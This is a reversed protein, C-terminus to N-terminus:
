GARSRVRGRAFPIVSKSANGASAGEGGDKGTAKPAPNADPEGTDSPNGAGDANKPGGIQPVTGDGLLAPNNPDETVSPKPAAAQKVQWSYQDGNEKDEDLKAAKRADNITIWGAVFSKDNRGYVADQDEQLAEIDDADYGIYPTDDYLPSLWGNLNDRLTDSLPLVNEQYLAKRAEGYNSYTKNESDGILEPAINHVIAIERASLKQGEIWHMDNPSLGMEQWQVGGELLLPRGANMVGAYEEQIMSVMRDHQDPELNVETVLAGPPRAGNQLLATNWTRAANSQTISMAAAQIPSMGRWDDLPNFLKLHHIFPEPFPIKQNGVVYMYGAIPTVANGVIIQMRDPRHVYLEKPPGKDPGVREIFSNGDLMLYAVMAEWFAGHGQRPNPQKLLDLIPHKDLRTKQTDDTYAVWSIGSAAMAIQRVAAFVYPNSGYGQKAVSVYDQPMWRPTFNGFQVLAGM